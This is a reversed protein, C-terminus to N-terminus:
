SSRGSGTVDTLRARVRDADPRMGLRRYIELAQRLRDAGHVTDGADLHCEAIGELSVAEDDHKSLERHVALARLHLALARPRDGMALLLTGYHNLAWAEDGRHGLERYLRLARTLADAAGTHDGALRRVVGSEALALAQGHRHGLDRYLQLAQALADAAGTHDGALRRVAGLDTLATAQGQRNGLERNLELARALADAAAALDGVFSHVRGLESLATAQGQRNGLERYLGLSRTLADAAGTFEGTLYRVRGLEAFVTAQGHRNGLGRYLRLAQALAEGAGAYDGTLHRVRVLEVLAGARGLPEDVEAHLRLALGLADAAGSADGTLRRVRGLDTLAGARGRRDGLHGAATEHVALARAWPGDTVMIQALGAALAVTHAGMGRGHAQEFAGELGAREVRLWTRASQEDPLAPAHRPAPGGPGQRPVRDLLVGARRATHQYYAFLRDRAQERQDEPDAAALTRAHARILDHVRYRGPAAGLLLSHDSLQQVLLDAEDLDADLLAAAAYADIEPGPLLGLRRFLLRQRQSLERYSLDFVAALSRGTVTYGALEDGSRRSALRHLLRRLDWAKGGTRLLAAAILLALPLRGCREAVQHWLSEDASGTDHRSAERLLAVAADVPLVDLSLPLADDLSTLRRRSTILVLCGGAAPLLPRVQDEDAANDLVVLTRTGSLRDRYLAARADVDGPIRQPPVGLGGLLAALADGPDRPAKGQTFGYLDLFLQGDPFREALRHAAHVALASKGVGGMGDIASIVM